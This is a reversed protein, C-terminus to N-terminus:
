LHIEKTSHSALAHHFALEEKSLNEELMGIPYIPVLQPEPVKEIRFRVGARIFIIEQGREAKNLVASFKARTESYTMTKM